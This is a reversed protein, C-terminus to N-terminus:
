DFHRRDESVRKEVIPASRFCANLSNRRLGARECFIQAGPAIMGGDASDGPDCGTSKSLALGVITLDIL